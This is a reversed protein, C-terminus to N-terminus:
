RALLATALIHEIRRTIGMQIRVYLTQAVPTAGDDGPAVLVTGRQLRRKGSLGPFYFVPVGPSAVM